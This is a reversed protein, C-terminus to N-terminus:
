RQAAATIVGVNLGAFGSSTVASLLYNDATAYQEDQSIVARSGPHSGISIQTPTPLVATPV